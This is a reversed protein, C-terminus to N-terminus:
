FDYVRNLSCIIKKLYTSDTWVLKRPLIISAPL